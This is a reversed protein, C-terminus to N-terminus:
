DRMQLRSPTNYYNPRGTGRNTLRWVGFTLFAEALIAMAAKGQEVVSQPLDALVDGGQSALRRLDTGCPSVVDLRRALPKRTSVDAEEWLVMEQFLRDMTANQGPREVATPFLLGALAPPEDLGVVVSSLNMDDRTEAPAASADRGDEVVFAPVEARDTKGLPVLQQSAEPLDWGATVLTIVDADVDLINVEGNESKDSIEQDFNDEPRALGDAIRGGDQRNTPGPDFAGVPAQTEPSSTRGLGSAEGSGDAARAEHPGPAVTSFAAAYRESIFRANIAKMESFHDLDLFYREDGAPTHVAIGAGLLDSGPRDGPGPPAAAGPQRFVFVMEATTGFQFNLVPFSEAAVTLEGATVVPPPASPSLSSRVSAQAAEAQSSLGGRSTQQVFGADNGTMVFAEVRSVIRLASQNLPLPTFPLGALLDVSFLMRDSLSELRLPPHASRRPPLAGFIAAWVQAIRRLSALM